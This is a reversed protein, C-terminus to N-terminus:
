GEQNENGNEGIVALAKRLESNTIIESSRIKAALEQAQMPARQVHARNKRKPAELRRHKGDALLLYGGQAETVLFLGGRERGATAIVLDGKAIDM